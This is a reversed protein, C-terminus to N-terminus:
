RGTAPPLTWGRSEGNPDYSGLSLAPNRNVLPRAYMPHRMSRVEHDLEYVKKGSDPDVIDVFRYQHANSEQSILGRQALRAYPGSFDNIYVQVHNGDYPVRPSDTERFYLYQDEGAVVTATPSGRRQGVKAIAGMVRDYFRAIGPASGVPVDFDVYAMGLAIRGFRAPDPSHCDIRNGWPCTVEVADNGERFDFKTGDLSKRAAALRNLLADRDPLVLGIVGQMVQTGRTPLHFQSIGINVWMNTTGTMLYPDRTLGLATVYFATALLQDPVFVNVHGLNVINGLDEAGRDFHAEGM